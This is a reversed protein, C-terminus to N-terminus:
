RAKAEKTADEPISWKEFSRGNSQYLTGDKVCRWISPFGVCSFVYAMERGCVTCAPRRSDGRTEKRKAM